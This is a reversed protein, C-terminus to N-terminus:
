RTWGLPGRLAYGAPTTVLRTPRKSEREIAVRLKRIAAHLRNDDYTVDALHQRALATKGIAADGALVVVPGRSLATRLWAREELRGSFVAPPNSHRYRLPVSAVVPNAM